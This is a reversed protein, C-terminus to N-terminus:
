LGLQIECLRHVVRRAVMKAAQLDLHLRAGLLGARQTAPLTVWDKPPSERGTALREILNGAETLLDADTPSCHLLIAGRDDTAAHWGLPLLGHLEHDLYPSADMMPLATGPPMYIGEPLLEVRSQTVSAICYTAALRRSDRRRSELLENCHTM